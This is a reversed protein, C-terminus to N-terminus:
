GNKEANKKDEPNVYFITETPCVKINLKKEVFKKATNVLHL